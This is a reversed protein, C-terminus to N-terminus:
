QVKNVELLHKFMDKYAKSGASNKTTAVEKSDNRSRANDRAVRRFGSCIECAAADEERFLALKQKWWDKQTETMYIDFVKMTHDLEGLDAPKLPVQLITSIDPLSAPFMQFGASNCPMWEDNLYKNGEINNNARNKFSNQLIKRFHHRVVGDEQRKVRFYRPETISKVSKPILPNLLATWCAM